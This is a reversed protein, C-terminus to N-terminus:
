DKVDSSRQDWGEECELCKCGKGAPMCEDCGELNCSPCVLFPRRSTGCFDCWSHEDTKATM